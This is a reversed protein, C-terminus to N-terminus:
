NFVKIGKYLYYRAKLSLPLFGWVGRWGMLGGGGGGGGGVCVGVCLGSM